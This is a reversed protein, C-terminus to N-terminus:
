LEIRVIRRLWLLGIIQLVIAALVLPPGMPHVTLIRVWEPRQWAIYPILLYPAIGIALATIQAGTLEARRRLHLRIRERMVRAITRLVPAMDGGASWKTALAQTFIRTGESDYREAMRSLAQWIDMGMDLRNVAAELETRVAGESAAAASSLAQTPNEGATVASAMHDVADVLKSEFRRGRIRGWEVVVMWTVYMAILAILAAAMPLSPLALWVGGFVLAGLILIALLFVLVPGHFGAARLRRQLRNPPAPLEAPPAEDEDRMRALDARERRRRLWERGLDAALLIVAVAVVVLLVFELVLSM